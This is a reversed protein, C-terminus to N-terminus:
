AAVSKRKDPAATRVGFLLLYGLMWVEAIIPPIALYGHVAKGLEPSVFAALMDVVYATGAVILVVGLARPFFGSKYALFGLPMLWLGFFIQAILYGYNHIDLLLLVLANSGAIGFAAAYSPDTAVRLAAFQFVKDLCMVTTAIAVIVVMATAANRHVRSLLLYLTMALFVFVTAQLLDALVGIRVLDANALVKGVTAAADGPVYLMPSVYGVAFGGFVGVVLYLLGAIRALRKPSSTIAREAKAQPKSIGTKVADQLVAM